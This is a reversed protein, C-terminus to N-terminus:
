RDRSLEEPHSHTRPTRGTRVSDLSSSGRSPITVVIADAAHSCRCRRPDGGSRWDEHSEGGGPGEPAPTGRRGHRRGEEVPLLDSRQGGMTRCVESVPTGGEAQRLAFAIQEVAYRTKQM